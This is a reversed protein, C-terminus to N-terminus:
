ECTEAQDVCAQRIQEAPVGLDALARGVLGSAEALLGLLVAVAAEQGAAKTRQVAAAGFARRLSPTSPLQGRPVPGPGPVITAEVAQRLRELDLGSNQLLEAAPNPAAELLALFVHEVSIYEHRYRRAIREALRCCGAVTKDFDSTPLGRRRRPRWVLRWM